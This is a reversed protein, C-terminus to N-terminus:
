RPRLPLLTVHGACRSDARARRTRRHPEGLIRFDQMRRGPLETHSPHLSGAHPDDILLPVADVDLDAENTLGIGIGLDKMGGVVVLVVEVGEPPGTVDEDGLDVGGQRRRGDFAELAAPSNRDHATAEVTHIDAGRPAPPDCDGVDLAVAGFVEGLVDQGRDECM